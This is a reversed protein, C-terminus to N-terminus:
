FAVLTGEVEGTEEDILRMRASRYRDAPFYLLGSHTEGPAIRGSTLAKGDLRHVITSVDIPPLPTEGSEPVAAASAELRAAIESGDLPHTPESDEDVLAIREAHLIYARTTYNVVVVRVVLLGRQTLDAGTAKRTEFRDLPRMTVRLAEERPAAPGSQPSTKGAASGSSPPLGEPTVPWDGAALLAYYVDRSFDFTPLFWAGEVPQFTVKEGCTIRVRGYRRGDPTERQVEIVGPRGPAAPEFRTIEYHLRVLTRHVQGNADECDLQEREVRYKATYCGLAFIVVVVGVRAYSVKM